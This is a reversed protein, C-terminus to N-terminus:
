ERGIQEAPVMTLSERTNGNCHDCARIFRKDRYFTNINEKLLDIPISLDLLDVMDESYHSIMGTRTGHSSRPCRYLKGDLLETCSNFHCRGFLEALQDDPLNRRQCDGLDAWAWHKNIRFDIGLRNLAKSLGKMQLSLTGYNNIVVSVRDNKLPALVSDSPVLTGNTIVDIQFVKESRVLHEVILPLDPNLFPEGGLAEVHYIRDVCSFLRDLSHFIKSTELDSPKKYYPMMSSCRKCRLTCRSTVVVNLRPLDLGNSPFAKIEPLKGLKALHWLIKKLNSSPTNKFDICGIVDADSYTDKYGANALQHRIENAYRGAAIIVLADPYDAQLKEFSIVKYGHFSNEQKQVDNDCFCEPRVDLLELSDLVVKGLISAGFIVICREAEVAKVLFDNM